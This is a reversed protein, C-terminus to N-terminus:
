HPKETLRKHIDREAQAQDPKNLRDYAQALHYHPLPEKPALAISKTFEAAAEDYQHQAALVLGLQYRAEWNSDSLAISKRLLPEAQPDGHNQTLLVEALLLQARANEPERAAWAQYDKQIEPLRPGAQDLMRGLFDYPQEISPDITIVKLFETQAEEFRRQGYRAVGLALTLQPDQPNASLASELIEAAQAFQQRRMLAQADAFSIDSLLHQNAPTPSQKLAQRACTLAKDANGTESYFLALAHATIPNDHGTKEAKGAAALAETPLNLKLYTQALSTWIYSNKPDQQSAQELIQRAEPLHNQQLAELGRQLQIFFFLLLM